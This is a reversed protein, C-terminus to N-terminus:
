VTRQFTTKNLLRFTEVLRIIEHSHNDKMTSTCQSSTQEFPHSRILLTSKPEYATDSILRPEYFQFERRVVTTRMRCMESHFRTHRYICTVELTDVFGIVVALLGFGAITVLISSANYYWTTCYLVM